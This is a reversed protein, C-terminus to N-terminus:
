QDASHVIKLINTLKERAKSILRKCQPVSEGIWYGRGQRKVHVRIEETIEEISLLNKLITPNNDLTNYKEKRM